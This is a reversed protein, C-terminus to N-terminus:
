LAYGLGKLNAKIAFELEASEAFQGALEATLRAMKEDFAEGDDEVDEAGVYRGPTLVHGHSIIESLNASKSFGSADAYASNPSARWARFTGAIKEIDNKTFDRLVRDKM